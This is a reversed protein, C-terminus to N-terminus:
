RPAAVTHRMCKCPVCCVTTHPMCLVGSVMGTTKVVPYLVLSTHTDQRTADLPCAKPHQAATRIACFHRPGAIAKCPSAAQCLGTQTPSSCCNPVELQFSSTSQLAKAHDPQQPSTITHLPTTTLVPWCPWCCYMYMFSTSLLPQVKKLM